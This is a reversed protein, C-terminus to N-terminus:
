FLFSIILYSAIGYLCILSLSMFIGRISDNGALYSFTYGLRAVAFGVIWAHAALSSPSAFAFILAVFVFYVANETTNRHANHRRELEELGARPAEERSIGSAAWEEPTAFMRFRVRTLETTTMLWTHNILLLVAAIVLAILSEESPPALVSPKVGFLFLNLAVSIGLLAFPYVMVISQTRQKRADQETNM